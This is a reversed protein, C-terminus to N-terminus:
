RCRMLAFISKFVVVSSWCKAIVHTLSFSRADYRARELGHEYPPQAAFKPIFRPNRSHRPHFARQDAGMRSIRPELDEWCFFFCRFLSM